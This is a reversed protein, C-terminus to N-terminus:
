KDALDPVVLAEWSTPLTIMATFKESKVTQPVPPDLDGYSGGSSHISNSSYGIGGGPGMGSLVSSQSNPFDSNSQSRGSNWGGPGAM